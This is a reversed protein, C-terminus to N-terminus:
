HPGIKTKAHYPQAFLDYMAFAHDGQVYSQTSADGHSKSALNQSHIHKLTFHFKFLRM